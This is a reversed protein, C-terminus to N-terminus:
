AGETMKRFLALLREREDPELAELMAVGLRTRDDLFAAHMRAGSRTLTVVVQRRDTAPRRRSVLKRQVLEDVVGTTSSLALGLGSSMDTMTSQGHDALFRLLATESRSLEASKQPVLFRGSLVELQAMLERAMGELKKKPM